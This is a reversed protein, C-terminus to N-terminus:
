ATCRSGPRRGPANGAAAPQSSPRMSSSMSPSSKSDEDLLYLRSDSLAVRGAGFDAEVTLLPSPRPNTRHPCRADGQQNRYRVYQQFLRCRIPSVPRSGAAWNRVASRRYHVPDSATRRRSLQKVPGLRSIGVREGPKDLRAAEAADSVELM